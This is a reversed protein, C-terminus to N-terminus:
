KTMNSILRIIRQLYLNSIPDFVNAGNTLINPNKSSYKAQVTKRGYEAKM